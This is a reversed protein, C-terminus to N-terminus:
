RPLKNDTFHQIADTVTGRYHEEFPKTIERSISIKRDAYHTQFDTPTQPTQPTVRLFHHNQNEEALEKLRTQRGKKTPSVKLFLNIV